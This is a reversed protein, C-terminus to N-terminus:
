VNATRTSPTGIGIQGRTGHLPRRQIQIPFAVWGPLNFEFKEM